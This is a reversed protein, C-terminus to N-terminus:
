ASSTESLWDEAKLNHNWVIISNSMKLDADLNHSVYGDLLPYDPVDALYSDVLLKFQSFEGKFERICRPMSNFIKAGSIYITRERLSQIRMISGSINNIIIKPGHRPDNKLIFNLSPVLGAMSKWVYFLRYRENRRESSLLRLRNLRQWYNQNELGKIRRSFQRLPEEQARLEGKENCPTWIISGYDQVPQILSKWLQKM